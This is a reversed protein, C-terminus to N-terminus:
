RFDLIRAKGSHGEGILQYRVDHDGWLRIFRM